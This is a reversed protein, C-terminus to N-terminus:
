LPDKKPTGTHRPYEKSLPSQKKFILLQRKGWDGGLDYTHSRTYTCSLTKQANTSTALEQNAQMSKWLVIHGNPKVFPSCFELLTNIPAVARATVLDFQERYQADHGLEEARGALVTINTLNLDNAIRMIADTKKTTADLGTITAQPLTIALPLAPFGGGTGIDLIKATDLELDTELIPLSDVINGHWCVDETRLASLNLKANEELFRTLLQRLMVEHEM